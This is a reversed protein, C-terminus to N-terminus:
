PRSVTRTAGVIVLALAAATVAVKLGVATLDASWGEFPNLGNVFEGVADKVAEGNVGAPPAPDTQTGAPVPVGDPTYTIPGGKVVDALHERYKGSAYVSWPRWNSGARSIEVMSRANFAPDTLRSADRTRGTGYDAKLSRVQWLGVSPGWRSTQIGTDGVADTRLGSEAMAIATAIGAQAPDLGASRALQYVASPTLTPM